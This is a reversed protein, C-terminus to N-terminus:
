LFGPLALFPSPFCLFALKWGKPLSLIRSIPGQISYESLCYYMSAGLVAGLPSHVWYTTTATTLVAVRQSAKVPWVDQCIQWNRWNLELLFFQIKTLRWCIYKADRFPGSYKWKFLALLSIPLQETSWCLMDPSITNISCRICVLCNISSRM